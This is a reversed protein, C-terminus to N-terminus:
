NEDRCQVGYEWMVLFYVFIDGSYQHVPFLFSGDVADVADVSEAEFSYFNDMDM